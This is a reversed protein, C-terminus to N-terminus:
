PLRGPVMEPPGPLLSLLFNEVLLQRNGKHRIGVITSELEELAGPGIGSRVALNQLRPVLDLHILGPVPDGPIGLLMQDRLLTMLIELDSELHTGGRAIEEARAVAIGPDGREQIIELIRLLTERRERYSELDLDIAAGIRGGSLGARLTAEDASLSRTAVLFSAIDAKSVLQFAVAQCRSRITPLLAHPSATLLLIVAHSPPEELTKLLANAPPGGMRHAQDIILVARRGESPRRQVFAISERIRDILISWVPNRVAESQRDQLDVGSSGESPADPKRFESLKEPFVVRVDPHRLSHEDLRRCTVCAGCPADPTAPCLLARCLAMATALKGIGVPGHFILSPIFRGSELAQLLAGTARPQGVIASLHM